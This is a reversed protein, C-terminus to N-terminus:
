GRKKIFDLMEMKSVGFDRMALESLTGIVVMLEAKNTKNHKITGEVINENNRKHKVNVKIM